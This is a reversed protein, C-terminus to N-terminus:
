LEIRTFSAEVRSRFSRIKYQKGEEEADGSVPESTDNLLPVLDDGGFQFLDEENSYSPLRASINRRVSPLGVHWGLGFCSAKGGSDYALSLSPSFGRGASIPLPFSISSTGTVLNASFNDDLASIAGGGKPLSAEPSQHRFLNQPAEGKLIKKEELSSEVWSNM